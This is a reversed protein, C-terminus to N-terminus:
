NAKGMSPKHDVALHMNMCSVLHVMLDQLALAVDDDLWYEVVEIRHVAMVASSHALTLSKEARYFLTALETSIMAFYCGNLFCDKSASHAEDQHGKSM